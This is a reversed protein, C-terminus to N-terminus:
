HLLEITERACHAPASDQQFVFENGSIQRIVPVLKQTVARRPLLCRKDEDGARCFFVRHLWTKVSRRVGHHDRQVDSTYALSMGICARTLLPLDMSPPPPAIAGGWLPRQLAKQYGTKGIKRNWPRM